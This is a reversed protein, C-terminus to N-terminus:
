QWTLLGSRQLAAGNIFDTTFQGLLRECNELAILQRCTRTMVGCGFFRASYECTLFAIEM